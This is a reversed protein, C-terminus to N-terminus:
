IQYARVLDMCRNASSVDPVHKVFYFVGGVLQHAELLRNFDAFEINFVVLPTDGIQQRAEPLIEFSPPFDRDDQLVIAKLGKLTSAPRLLHRGNAHLHVIGGDFQAFIREVPERGWEEFYDISTM